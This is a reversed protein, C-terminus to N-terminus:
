RLTTVLTRAARDHLGRHLPPQLVPAVVVLFVLTALQRPVLLRATLALGDFVAWRLISRPVSPPAATQMDLAKTRMLMKGITQGKASTLAIFYVAGLIEVLRLATKGAVAGLVIAPVFMLVGDIFRGILRQSFTPAVYWAPM